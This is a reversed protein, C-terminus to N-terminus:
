NNVPFLERFFKIIKCKIYVWKLRKGDVSDPLVDIAAKYYSIQEDLFESTDGLVIFFDQEEEPTWKYYPLSELIFNHLRLKYTSLNKLYYYDCMNEFINLIKEKPLINQNVTYNGGVIINNNGIESEYCHIGM